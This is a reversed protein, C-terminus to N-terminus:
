KKFLFLRGETRKSINKTGILVQQADVLLEQFVIVICIDDAKVQSGIPRRNLSFNIDAKVPDPFIGFFQILIIVCLEVPYNKM